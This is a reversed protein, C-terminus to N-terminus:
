RLVSGSMGPVLEPYTGIIRGVIRITQSVPDILAGRRSVEAHYDRGNENVRYTLTKGIRFEQLRNSPVIFEIELSSEDLIDLIATGVQAFQHPRAKLAVVRGDYPARIKCKSVKVRAAKVEARAKQAAADALVLDLKGASNLENLRKETALKKSAGLYIASVRELQAGLLACDLQIILQGKKFQEGDRVAIMQIRAAIEAALTTFNGPRLEGHIASTNQSLFNGPQQALAPAALGFALVIPAVFITGLQFRSGM